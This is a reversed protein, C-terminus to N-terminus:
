SVSRIQAGIEPEIGALRREHRLLAELADADVPRSFLFNQGLDCGLGRLRREQEPTEIGEAIIRLDLTQGLAVIAHAFAWEDRDSDDNTVFERAIKLYDVRFRRLYGLSSYGTGFDDVAIRIGLARLDALRTITTATDALLDTETMELCLQGPPLSADRLVQALDAVLNPQQLDAASHNVTLLLPREPMVKSWAAVQRCAEGLVWRDLAIITGNEEALRLFEDPGLLGRTPHRWRVLAEVGEILGSALSVIPQYHLLLEGRGLSRSLDSALEHRAVIASHMTPDFIVTRGKGSSKATYMAVDANRLIETAHSTGPIGVAIGISAGVATEEVVESLDMRLEGLIRAAMALAGQLDPRDDILIAFEDGGLRAPLDGERVCRRVREAVAILLRDGTAHGKTDNVMKFDDLDVFLVVPVLDRPGAALREELAELFLSRNALDTLSDHFAQYRLQEKLRSLVALSQELQGNELATAAQNALTALLRLDDDTFATGQTIRQAVVMSGIIGSEGRLPSVM